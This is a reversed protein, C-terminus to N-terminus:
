GARRRVRVVGAMLAALLGAGLAGLGPVPKAVPAVVPVDAVQLSATATNNALNTEATVNAVTAVLDYSGAQSATAQFSLTTSGTSAALAGLSCTLTAGTVSCSAPLSGADVTLGTPLPLSVTGDASASAGQNTIHLTFTQAVGVMATAPGTLTVALDPARTAQKCAGSPDTAANMFAEAIRAPQGAFQFPSIDATLFLCAGQGGNFGQQPVFFAYANVADSPQPLGSGQPLYLANDGPVNQVFRYYGGELVPLGSFSGAYLSATNLPSSILSPQYTPASLGWGVGQNIIDVLPQLNTDASCCGDPFMVFTLDPRHLMLDALVPYWASHIRAYTTTLVVLQAGNFLTADPTASSLAGRHDSITLGHAAAYDNFADYANNTFSWDVASPPVPQNEDPSLFVIQAQAWSATLLWCVALARLIHRM